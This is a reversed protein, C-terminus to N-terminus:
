SKKANLSLMQLSDFKEFHDLKKSKQLPTISRVIQEMIKNVYKQIEIVKSKRFVIVQYLSTGFFDLTYKLIYKLIANM